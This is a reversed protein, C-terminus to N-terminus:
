AVVEFAPVPPSAIVHRATNVHRWEKPQVAAAHPTDNLQRPARGRRVAEPGPPLPPFPLGRANPSPRAHVETPREQFMGARGAMRSPSKRRAKGADAQRPLMNVICRRVPVDEDGSRRPFLRAALFRLLFASCAPSAHRPTPARPCPRPLFAMASTSSDAGPATVAQREGRQTRLCRSYSTGNGRGPKNRDGPTTRIERYSNAKQHQISRRTTARESHQVGHV